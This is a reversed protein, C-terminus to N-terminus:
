NSGVLRRVSLALRQIKLFHHLARSGGVPGRATRQYGMQDRCAKVAPGLEGFLTSHTNLEDTHTDFSGISALFVQRSAGLSAHVEIIKAIALLQKAISSGLGTFHGSVPTTTSALIPNLATSSQIAGTMVNQAGDLLDTGRDVGLLAQLAGLRAVGATSSDFGNLGFSGGIPVTLTQTARGTVFLSNGCNFDHFPRDARCKFERASRCNTRGPWHEVTRRVAVGAMAVASGPALFPKTPSGVDQSDFFPGIGYRVTILDQNLYFGKPEVISDPLAFPFITTRTHSAM